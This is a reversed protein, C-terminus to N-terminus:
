HRPKPSKATQNTSVHQAQPQAVGRTECVQQIAQEICEGHVGRRTGETQPRLSAQCGVVASVENVARNIASILGHSADHTRCNGIKGRANRLDHACVIQGRGGGKRKFLPKCPLLWGTRWNGGGAIGEEEESVRRQWRQDGDGGHEHGCEVTDRGEPDLEAVGAAM